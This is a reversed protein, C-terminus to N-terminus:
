QPLLQWDLGPMPFLQGLEVGFQPQSVEPGIDIMLAVLVLSIWLNVIAVLITMKLLSHSLGALQIDHNIFHALEHALIVRVSERQEPQSSKVRKVLAKVLYGGIGVFSRRFTGFSHVLTQDDGVM